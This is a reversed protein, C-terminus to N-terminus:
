AAVMENYQEGNAGLDGGLAPRRRARGRAALIGAGITAATVSAVLITAKAMEAQPGVGFALEAMLLAVTFGVGGLAGVGLIDLWGLGPALQVRNSRSVLWTATVIGIPKGLVLAFFIGISVPSDVAAAVASGDVRVGASMLAFIPVAVGASFPRWFHELREADSQNQGRRALAGVSMGLVVGALTAHIGSAHMLAWTIVALPVVVWATVGRKVLVHFLAAGLLSAGLFVFSIDSAFLTAIFIIGILDDVVALTLLFARLAIPLGRGVIALVAVAFAIDTATPVPWGGPAGDTSATNVTFYILAPVTVGGVAAVVPLLATHIKRLEGTVIERKLELGVIFFFVALLGDAAWEHLSLNLHLAEPGFQVERLAEYAGHWPSNAWVIAIAAAVLLLVGGITETRLSDGFNRRGGATLRSFLPGRAPHRGDM